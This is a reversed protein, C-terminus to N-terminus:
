GIMPKITPKMSTGSVYKNTDLSATLHVSPRIVPLAAGEDDDDAGAEDAYWERRICERTEVTATATATLVPVTDSFYQRYAKALLLYSPRFQHAWTTLCHAEDIFMFPIYTGISQIRRVLSANGQSGGSLAFKEPSMFLVKYKQPNKFYREAKNGAGFSFGPIAMPLRRVQDMMLSILPSVVLTAVQAVSDFLCSLIFVPLQYIISKGTGLWAYSFLM